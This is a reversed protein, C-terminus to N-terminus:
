RLVIVVLLSLFAISSVSLLINIYKSLKLKANLIEIDKKLLLNNVRIQELDTQLENFAQDLNSMNSM